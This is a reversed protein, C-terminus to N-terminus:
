DQKYNMIDIYMMGDTRYEDYESMPTESLSSFSDIYVRQKKGVQMSLINEHLRLNIFEKNRDICYKLDRNNFTDQLFLFDGNWLVKNDDDTLIGLMYSSNKFKKFCSPVFGEDEVVEDIPLNVMRFNIVERDMVELIYLTKHVSRINLDFLDCFTRKTFSGFFSSNM